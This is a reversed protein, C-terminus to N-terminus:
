FKDEMCSFDDLPLSARKTNVESSLVKLKSRFKSTWVYPVQRKKTFYKNLVEQEKEKEKKRNKKLTSMVIYYISSWTIIKSIKSRYPADLYMYPVIFFVLM